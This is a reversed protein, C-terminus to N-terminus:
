SPIPMCRSSACSPPGTSTQMPDVAEVKGGNMVHAEFRAFWAEYAEDHQRAPAAGGSRETPSLVPDLALPDTM